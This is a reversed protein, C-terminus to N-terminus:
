RLLQCTLSFEALDGSASIRRSSQLEVQQCLRHQELWLVLTSINAEPNQERAQAEGTLAVRGSVDVTLHTLRVPSPFDQALRRGWVLPVGQENILRDVVGTYAALQEQLSVVPQLHRQQTELHTLQSSMTGDKVVWWGGAVGVLLAAALLVRSAQAAARVVHGRRRWPVPQLDLLHSPTAVALGYPVAATAGSAGLIPTCDLRSVPLGLTRSLWHDCQPMQCGIGSILARTPAASSATQAAFAITRRVESTLQELVPQVMALYRALPIRISGANVTEQSASADPIGVTAKLAQAQARSLSLTEPGIAVQGMLAETLHDAGISIDRAYVVDGAEVLAITTRREGLDILLLPTQGLVGLARAAEVLAVSSPLVGSPVWGADYLAALDREVVARECAALAIQRELHGGSPTARQVTFQLHAQEIAFPLLKPAQEEIVGTIRQDDTVHVVLRHVYSAPSSIVLRVHLWHRRLPQLVRAIERRLAESSAEDEVRPSVRYSWDLRGGPRPIAWAAKVSHADLELGVRIPSQLFPM